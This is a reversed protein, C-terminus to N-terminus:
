EFDLLEVDFILDARPPIAGPYGREGYALWYPILLKRAEGKKMMLLGEDWGKIVRGQGVAVRIPQGRKYSSDFVKGDKLTGKYHVTATVGRMPVPGSGKKLIMYMLGSDTKQADPYRLLMETEFKARIKRVELDQEAKIAAIRRDFAAQDAKFSGAAEGIRLIKLSIIKDGQAIKDVVDQGTIVKGFVTHKNDLWPTAKHTIFFQSGNTGPGANAMSLIGPGDHKLDKVFEDPFDYGPGGRGTGTPDGGQIMFDRIVRHFTLGDYYKVGKGRNSEKTGEALGVFNIVTLPTQEYFLRATIQGKDTEFRAYLGPALDSSFASGSMFLVAIVSLSAHIKKFHIM